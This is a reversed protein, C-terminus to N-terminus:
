IREQDTVEVTRDDRTEGTHLTAAPEFLLVSADGVPKHEVGRPVVFLEGPELEVVRDRLHIELRGEIVLFLEDEADHTHWVFEGRTKALKVLQGNLEGVIKPTWTEEFLSLKQALNVKGAV